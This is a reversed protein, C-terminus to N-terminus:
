GPVEILISQLSNNKEWLYKLEKIRYLYNDSGFKIKEGKVEVNDGKIKNLVQKKWVKIM